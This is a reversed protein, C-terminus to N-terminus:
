VSSPQAYMKKVKGSIEKEDQWGEDCGDICSVYGGNQMVFRDPYRLIIFSPMTRLKNQGLFSVKDNNDLTQYDPWAQLWEYILLIHTRISKRFARFSLPRIDERTFPDEHEIQSSRPSSSSIKVTSLNVSSLAPNLQRLDGHKVDLSSDSINDFSSARSLEIVEEAQEEEEKTSPAVHAFRKNRKLGSKTCFSRRHESTTRRPQVGTKNMGSNLCKEFRCSRCIQHMGKTDYCRSYTTNDKASSYATTPFANEVPAPM